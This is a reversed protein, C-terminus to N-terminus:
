FNSAARDLRGLLWWSSPANHQYISTALRDRMREQVRVSMTRTTVRFRNTTALAATSTDASATVPPQARNPAGTASVEADTDGVADGLELGDGDVDGLGLGDDGAVGEGHTGIVEGAGDLEQGDNM